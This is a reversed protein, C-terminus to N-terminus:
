ASARILDFAIHGYLKAFDKELQKIKHKQLGSTKAWQRKRCYELVAFLSASNVNPLSITDYALRPELLLMIRVTKMRWAVPAEVAYDELDSTRLTLIM